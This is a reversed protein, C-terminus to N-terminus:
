FIFFNIKFNYLSHCASILVIKLNKYLILDM